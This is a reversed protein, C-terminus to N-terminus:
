EWVPKNYFFTNVSRGDMVRVHLLVKDASLKEPVEVEYVFPIMKMHCNQSVQKMKPLISYTDLGNDVITIEKLEFCDSPNYGKLLVKRGDTDARVVEDINAYIVDDISNSSAENVKLSGLKEWQLSENVAIQHTGKDLVGVKIYEVFPIRINTCFQLPSEYKKTANVTVSIKGEVVKVVSKPAQYCLNPLYGSVAFEVNDNSDFGTPSYIHTVPISVDFAYASLNLASVALFACMMKKNVKM